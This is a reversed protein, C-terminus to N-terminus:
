QLRQYVGSHSSAYQKKILTITCRYCFNVLLFKNEAFYYTLKLQRQLYIFLIRTFQIFPIAQTM